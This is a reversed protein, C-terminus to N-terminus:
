ISGNAMERKIIDQGERRAKKKWIRRSSAKNKKNKFYDRGGASYNLGFRKIDGADPYDLEPVRPVGYAKM